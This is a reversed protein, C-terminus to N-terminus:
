LRFELFREGLFRERDGRRSLRYNEKQKSVRSYDFLLKYEFQRQFLFM